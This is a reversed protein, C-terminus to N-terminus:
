SDGFVHHYFVLVSSLLLAIIYYGSSNIEVAFKAKEEHYNLDAKLFSLKESSLNLTEIRIFSVTLVL